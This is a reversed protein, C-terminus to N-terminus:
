YILHINERKGLTSRKQYSACARGVFLKVSHERAVVDGFLM